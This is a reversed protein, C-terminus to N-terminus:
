KKKNSETTFPPVGHLMEYILCGFTWYDVMHTYQERRIIEPPLYCLSGCFSRAKLVGVKSLGFDTLKIHGEADLLINEPKLDRYLTKMDNHLYNIAWFVEAAYFKAMHEPFQGRKSMLSYMHGGPIYQLLYYLNYEDQFSYKLNVIYPCKANILINRENMINEETCTVSLYKKKIRKMAYENTEKKRRLLHNPNKFSVLLVKGFAGSGLEKHVLIDHTSIRPNESIAQVYCKKSENSISDFSCESENFNEQIALEIRSMKMEDIFNKKYIENIEDKDNSCCLKALATGM